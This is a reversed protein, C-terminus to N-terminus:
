WYHSYRAYFSPYYKYMGYGRNYPYYHAHRYYKPAIYRARYPSYFAWNQYLWTPEYTPVYAYNGVRGRIVAYGEKINKFDGLFCLIVVLVIILAIAIVLNDNLINM